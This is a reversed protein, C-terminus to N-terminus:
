IQEKQSSIVKHGLKLLHSSIQLHDNRATDLNIDFRIKNDIKLLGITGGLAAFNEIDSVLLVPKGALKELIQPLSEKEAKSIFIIQCPPYHTLTDTKRIVLKRDKIKKGAFQTFSNGFFDNGYVCITVPSDPSPFASDPWVTFRAFNYIFAAKVRYERDVSNGAFANLCLCFLLVASLAFSFRLRNTKQKNKASTAVHTM